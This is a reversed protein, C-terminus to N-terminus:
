KSCEELTEPLTNAGISEYVFGVLKKDASSYAARRSDSNLIRRVLAHIEISADGYRSSLRYISLFCESRRFSNRATKFAEEKNVSYIMQIQYAAALKTAALKVDSSGKLEDKIWKDIDDRVGNGDADKGAISSDPDEKVTSTKKLLNKESDSTDNERSSFITCSWSSVVMLVLLYKKM